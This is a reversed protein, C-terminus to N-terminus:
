FEFTLGFTWYSAGVRLPDSQFWLGNYDARTWEAFLYTANVGMSDDFNRAAYDDLVNLNFGLGLGIQTGFSRGLGSIGQAHSTGLTNSARWLAMSLGVKAYPVLPVHLERWLADARLVGVAYFPFIELTTTEGSAGSRPPEFQAPDSMSAYGIALGPGITGVHPIRAAQWDLEASFLLRASTGFTDGYPTKGQLNPDSDIEPTFGSFRAEFAFHQPSEFTQHRGYLVEQREQGAAFRPALGVFAVALLTAAARLNSRASV